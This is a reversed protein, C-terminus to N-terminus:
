IAGAISASLRKLFAYFINTASVVADLSLPVVPPMWLVECFGFLRVGPLRRRLRSVRPPVKPNANTSSVSSVGGSRGAQPQSLATYASNQFGAALFAYIERITMHSVGGCGLKGSAGDM